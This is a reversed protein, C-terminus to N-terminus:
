EAEGLLERLKRRARFLRTGAGAVSIALHAAIEKQSYGHLVQLLLPERYESPLADLAQRLVFAETSTDYETRQSGLEEVAVGVEEPQYREFRRANERRLITILWGKAAAPQELKDLARWARLMTEQVLDDAIARNGTLWYAYRFLDDLHTAVLKDFRVERADQASPAATDSTRATNLALSSM